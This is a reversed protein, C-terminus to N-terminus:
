MRHLGKQTWKYIEINKWLKFLLLNFCAKAVIQVALCDFLYILVTLLLLSSNNNWQSKCCKTKMSGQSLIGLFCFPLFNLFEFYELFFLFLVFFLMWLFSEKLWHIMYFKKRETTLCNKKSLEHKERRGVVQITLHRMPFNQTYNWIKVFSSSNFFQRRFRSCFHYSKKCKSLNM